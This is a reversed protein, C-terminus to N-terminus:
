DFNLPPADTAELWAAVAAPSGHALSCAHWTLFQVVRLIDAVDIPATARLLSERLDNELVSTLLGGVPRRTALYERLGERLTPAVQCEELRRDIHKRFRDLDDSM